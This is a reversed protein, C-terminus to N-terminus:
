GTASPDGFLTGDIVRSLSEAAVRAQDPDVATGSKEMSDVKNASLPALDLAEGVLKTSHAFEEKTPGMIKRLVLLTRPDTTIATALSDVDIDEVGNTATVASTHVEEFYPVEYFPASPYIRLRVGPSPCVM